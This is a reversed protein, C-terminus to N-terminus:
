EQQSCESNKKLSAQTVSQIIDKETNGGLKFNIMMKEIDLM